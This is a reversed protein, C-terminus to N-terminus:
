TNMKIKGENRTDDNRTESNTYLNHSILIEINLIQKETKRRSNHTQDTSVTISLVFCHILLLM